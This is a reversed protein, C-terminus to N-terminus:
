NYTKNNFLTNDKFYDLQFANDYVYTLIKLKEEINEKYQTKYSIESSSINITKKFGINSSLENKLYIIEKNVKVLDYKLDEICKQMLQQAENQKKMENTQIKRLEKNEKKYFDIKQKISNISNLNNNNDEYKNISNHDINNNIEMNKIFKNDDINNVIKISNANDSCFSNEKKSELLVDNKNNSKISQDEISEDEKYEDEKYENKNSNSLIDSNFIDEIEEIIHKQDNLIIKHNNKMKIYENKLNNIKDILCQNDEELSSHLVKLHEHEKTLNDCEINIREFDKRIFEIEERTKNMKELVKKQEEIKDNMLDNQNKEADIFKQNIEREMENRTYVIEKKIISQMNEILSEIENQKLIINSDIKITDKDSIKKTLLTIYSKLKAEKANSRTFLEKIEEKYYSIQGTIDKLESNLNNIDVILKNTKFTTDNNKKTKNSPMVEKNKKFCQMYSSILNPKINKNTINSLHYSDKNTNYNYINM